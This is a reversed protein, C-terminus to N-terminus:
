NLRGLRGRMGDRVAGMFLKLNRLRRSSHWSYFLVYQPIKIATATRWEWGMSKCRLLYTANRIIYYSRADNHLNIQKGFLSVSSDGISHRMLAGPVIYCQYGKSRARLGWEIDVWDIFLEDLMTGVERWVSARILCGSAILYDAGVPEDSSGELDIKKVRLYRHRIAKSLAGTKEDIFVPGVAAVLKGAGLLQNETAVLKAVMDSSPASDQDLLLVHSCDDAFAKAVGVNQAFAIGKNEGLAQYCICFPRYPEFAAAGSASSGPTNDVVFLKQVQPMVSRILRDLLATDPNYLVIVAAIM